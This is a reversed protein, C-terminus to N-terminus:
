KRWSAMQLLLGLGAKLHINLEGWSEIHSLIRWLQKLRIYFIVNAHVIYKQLEKKTFSIPEVSARPGIAVFNDMNTFDTIKDKYFKEFVTTGPYPVLMNFFALTPKLEKAFNITKAVTSANEGESGFVFFALTKIRERNCIEFAKRCQDLTIGKRLTKLVAEDGSEVGFGINSCGARKMLRILERDVNNVRMFCYWDIKLNNRIIGDCITEVRDRIITFTDDNIVFHNVGLVTYLHTIESLVYEASHYRFKHGMTIHAACFVCYHPCGRSTLITASKKNKNVYPHPRYLNINVLERAPFPLSDVDDILERSPNIIVEKEKRYAIGKIKKLELPQNSGIHACLELMTNEGEGIVVVDIDTSNKLIWEPVASAHVGGLIVMATSCIKAFSAIKLAQKFNPTACSIGVIDPKARFLLEKVADANLGQVEPDLFVVEHGQKKIVAALYGIGLPFYRGASIKIPGYIDISPSNVLIIKLREGWM